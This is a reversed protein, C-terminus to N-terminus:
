SGATVVLLADMAGPHYDCYYKYAGPKDFTLSVAPSGMGATYGKKFGDPPDLPAITHMLEGVARWIITTGVPVTVEPPQFYYDGVIILFTGEPTATPEPRPRPQTPTLAPQAARPTATAPAPRTAALASTPLPSAAVAPQPTM